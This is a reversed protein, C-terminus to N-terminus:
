RRAGKEAGHRRLRLLADEPSITGRRLDELIALQTGGDRESEAKPGGDPVTLGLARVIAEISESM